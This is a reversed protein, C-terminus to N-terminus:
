RLERAVGRYIADVAASHVFLWHRNYHGGAFYYAFASSDSTRWRRIPEGSPVSIWELDPTVIRFLRSIDDETLEPNPESKGHLLSDWFTREKACDFSQVKGAKFFAVIRFSDSHFECDEGVDLVSDYVNPGKPKGSPNPSCPGFRQILEDKTTGIQAICSRAVAFQLALVLFARPAAVRM